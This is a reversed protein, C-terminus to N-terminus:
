KYCLLIRIDGNVSMFLEYNIDNLIKDLNYNTIFDEDYMRSFISYNYIKDKAFTNLIVYPPASNRKGLIWDNEAQVLLIIKKTNRSKM